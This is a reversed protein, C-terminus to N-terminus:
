QCLSVKRLDDLDSLYLQRIDSLGYRIMALRELGLGWAIVPTTCGLPETVEPRFVGCGGLEVWAQKPEFYVFVEASPETYPFFAPKFKVKDFGMHRYFETLTGLLTRFSAHQDIVVGDVQTFEPLHKYSITENRFVRGVAFVKRPPNPNEGLARITTATTHTRLVPQRAVEESWRYGWGTSGTEGGDEHVARVRDVLAQDAPLECREPTSMYFTDQMERAPHDQPQFLSDFCWFASEVHPSVIEEFGLQLFAKRTELLLRRLPHAKAPRRVEAPLTVDYPRLQVDRWSGDALQEHTLQNALEVVRLEPDDLLARGAEALAVRREIRDKLKIKAGGLERGKLAAVEDPADTEDLYLSGEAALRALAREEPLKIELAKRGDDTIALQGKDKSLWGKGKPGGHKLLDGPNTGHVRAWASVDKMSLEGAEALVPLFQREPLVPEGGQPSGDGAILQQRARESIELWGEPASALFAAIQAQDAQVAAALDPVLLPGDAAALAQLIAHQDRTLDPM